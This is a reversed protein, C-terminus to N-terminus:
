PGRPYTPGPRARRECSRLNGVPVDPTVVLSRPDLDRSDPPKSGRFCRRLPLGSLNPDREIRGRLSHLRSRTTRMRFCDHDNSSEQSM